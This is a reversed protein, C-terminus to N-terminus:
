KEFERVSSWASARGDADLRVVQAFLRTGSPLSSWFSEPLTVAGEPAVELDAISRFLQGHLVWPRHTFSPDGVALVLEDLAGDPHEWALTPLRSASWPIAGADIVAPRARKADDTASWRPDDNWGDPRLWQAVLALGWASLALMVGNVIWLLRWRALGLAIPVVLATVFPYLHRAQPQSFNLNFYVEAALMLAAAGLLFASGVRLERITRRGCCGGAPARLKAVLSVLGAVYALAVAVNVWGPFWVSTWGFDGVWSLWLVVAFWKWKEFGGSALAEATPHHFPSVNQYHWSWLPHGSEIWQWAYYPAAALLGGAVACMWSWPDGRKGFRACLGALALAPVLVLANIKVCCALGACLGAVFAARANPGQGACWETAQWLALAGLAALMLDMTITGSLHQFQPTLALLAAAGLCAGPQEPLFIRATRWTAWLAVLAWPLSALRLLRLDLAAGSLPAREDRGHLYMARSHPKALEADLDLEAGPATTVRRLFEPNPVHTARWRQMDRAEFLPVLSLFWLPPMHGRGLHELDYRPELAPPCLQGEVAIYRVYLANDGEDPGEWLPLLLNHACALAAFLACLAGFWWRERKTPGVRGHHARVTSSREHSTARRM